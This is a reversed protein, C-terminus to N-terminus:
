YDLDLLANSIGGDFTINSGNLFRNNSSTISVVFNALVLPNGIEQSPHIAALKGIAKEDNDFSARLMDTGIAAPSVANITIKGKFEVALSKTLGILAAKSTAYAFFKPKTQIAHISAINIVQGNNTALSDYLSQIFFYCSQFNVNMTTIWSDDEFDKFNGIIQAAANNILIAPNLSKLKQNIEKRYKKSGAYQDSDIQYYQHGYEHTIKPHLDIAVVDFGSVQYAQCLASGIGGNAGTIIVQNSM